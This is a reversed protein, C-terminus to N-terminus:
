EDDRLVGKRVREWERMCENEIIERRIRRNEKNRTRHRGEKRGSM